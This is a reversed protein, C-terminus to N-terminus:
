SHGVLVFKGKQVQYLFLPATKIQGTSQFAIPGLMTKLDLSRFADMVGARTASKSTVADVTAQGMIYGYASYPGADEHFMAKYESAFAQLEPSSDYPPAQFTVYSGEAADGGAQTVFDDTYGGDPVFLKAAFGQEHMQKAFLALQPMVAGLYVVDPKQAKLQTILASFDVDTPNVYSTSLVKGGLDAFNKAFIQSVGEGFAQKDNVVAATGLHLTKHIYQAPLSGQVYDNAVVQFVNKYGQQTIRPNSGFELVPMGCDSYIPLTALTVGSNLHGLLAIVKDDECAKQAVLTGERPDAKDDLQMLRFTHGGAGGAKNVKDFYLKMGNQWSVGFVAQPGSLPGASAVTVEDARATFGPAGAALCLLGVSVSVLLRNM